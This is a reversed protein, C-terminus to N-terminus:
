RKLREAIRQRNVLIDKIGPAYLSDAQGKYGIKKVRHMQSKWLPKFGRREMETVLEEFRLALWMAKDYFFM